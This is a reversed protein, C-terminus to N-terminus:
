FTLVSYINQEPFKNRGKMSLLEILFGLGIVEGHLKKVLKLAAEATGGTALVDDIIAIKEGPNISDTHIELSGHGYELDHTQVIKDYPLKGKKRVIVVGANLIYAVASALLFGRADIGVVKDVKTEKFFEALGNIAQRFAKKDELLPTIDRFNVGITPFDLVNRIKSKLYETDM